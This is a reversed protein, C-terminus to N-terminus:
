VSSSTAANSFCAISRYSFATAAASGAPGPAAGIMSRTFFCRRLLCRRPRTCCHQISCGLFGPFNLHFRVDSTTSGGSPRIGGCVRASMLRNSARSSARFCRPSASVHSSRFTFSRQMVGCAAVPSPPVTRITCPARTPRGRVPRGGVLEDRAAQRAGVPRKWSEHSTRADARDSPHLCVRSRFRCIEDVFQVAPGDQGRTPRQSEYRPDPSVKRRTSVYLRM